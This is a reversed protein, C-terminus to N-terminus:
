TILTGHGRLEMDQLFLAATHSDKLMRVTSLAPQATPRVAHRMGSSGHHGHQLSNCPQGSFAVTSASVLLQVCSPLWSRFPM